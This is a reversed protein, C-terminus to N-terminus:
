CSRSTCTCDQSAILRKNGQLLKSESLTLDIWKAVKALKKVASVRNEMEESQSKLVEKM